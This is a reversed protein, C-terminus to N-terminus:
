KFEIGLIQMRKTNLENLPVIEFSFLNIAVFYKLNNM